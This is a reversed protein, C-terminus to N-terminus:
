PAIGLWCGLGAGGSCASQADSWTPIQILDRLQKRSLAKRLYGLADADKTIANLGVITEPLLMEKTFFQNRLRSAVDSSIGALEAYRSVAAPDTYMWDVSKRYAWVFRGVVDKHKQLFGANAIMVSVTKKRINPVDNARAVVRIADQGIEELGFPAAAWGVDIEGSKLQQLTAAEGGTPTLRAKLRFQKTFDIADFHSSSGNREYAFTKGAIDKYSRVPSSKLVYWYNVSGALNAGIIRIPAGREYAQMAGMASVGLGIVAAGSIVSQRVEEADAVHLFDLVIGFKKFIGASQGLEAAATEWAGGQAVAVKLADEGFAQPMSALVAAAGIVVFRVLDKIRRM